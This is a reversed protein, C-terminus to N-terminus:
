RLSKGSLITLTLLDIYDFWSLDESPLSCSLDPRESISVFVSILLWFCVSASLDDTPDASGLLGLRKPFADAKAVPPDKNPYDEVVPPLRNLPPNLNGDVVVVVVPDLTNPEDSKPPDVSVGAEPLRRNPPSPVEDPPNKPLLLVLPVPRNVPVNAAPLPGNNPWVFFSPSPLSSSSPSSLIPM